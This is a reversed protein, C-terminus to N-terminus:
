LYFHNPHDEMRCFKQFLKLLCGIINKIKWVRLIQSLFHNNHNYFLYSKKVTGWVSGPISCEYWGARCSRWRKSIYCWHRLFSRWCFTWFSHYHCRTARVTTTTVAVKFSAEEETLTISACSTGFFKSVYWAGHQLDFFFHSFFPSFTFM